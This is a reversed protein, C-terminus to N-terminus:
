GGVAIRKFSLVTLDKSVSKLYDGVSKSNDKVFAQPLLTNDKFFKNLKGEVIRELMDGIKGEKITLERAIEREKEVTAPPVDKPDISIPSTAAIQMALDKVLSTLGAKDNAEGQFAIKVIVGIKGGMHSYTEIQEGAGAKEVSFRRLTILEGIKAIAATQAEGLTTGDVSLAKAAEVDAPASAAIAKVAKAAFANFDDSASVFDTECNIELAAVNGAEFPLSSAPTGGNTRVRRRTSGNRVIERM